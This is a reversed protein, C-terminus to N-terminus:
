DGEEVEEIKISTHEGVSQQKQNVKLDIWEPSDDVILFMDCLADLLPKAGGYLNDEDLLRKRYSTIVVKMRKPVARKFHIGRTAGLAVIIEEMWQRKAKSRKAWHWRQWKNLSEIKKKIAIETM